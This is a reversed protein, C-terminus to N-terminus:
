NLSLHQSITLMIKSVTEDDHHIDMGHVTVDDPQLPRIYRRPGLKRRADDNLRDVNRREGPDVPVQNGISVGLFHVVVNQKKLREAAQYLKRLNDSTTGDFSLGKNNIAIAVVVNRVRKGLKPCEILNVAHGLRAGPFAHIETFADTTTARAM